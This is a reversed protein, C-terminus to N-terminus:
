HVEIDRHIGGLNSEKELLSISEFVGQQWAYQAAVAGAVGGGLILLKM